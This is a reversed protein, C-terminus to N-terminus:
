RLEETGIHAAPFPASSTSSSAPLAAGDGRVTHPEARRVTQRLSRADGDHRGLDAAAGGARGTSAPPDKLALKAMAMLRRYQRPSRRRREGARVAAVARGDLDDQCPPDSTPERGPSSTTAISSRAPRPSARMRDLEEPDPRTAFLLFRPRYPTTARAAVAVKRRPPIAVWRTPNRYRRGAAGM